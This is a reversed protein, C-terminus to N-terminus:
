IRNKRKSLAGLVRMADERAQWDTKFIDELSPTNKIFKSKQMVKEIVSAIGCFSISGRLFAEVAVENAANIICPANGGCRLAEFALGLCPFRKIDPKEFLLEGIKLPDIHLRRNTWREPFSLSFQIPLRMDTAALQALVSGDVFEVMSHVLAKRHILVKIKEPDINFLERAEIVELGKNMLTASDVTIKKGMNWRPHSLVRKVSVSQLQKLSDDVLPGGSATLYLREVSDIGYGRLCQFIANQESDVPIIDVRHQLAEKRVLSGAIVIAEKNALAITKKARIASLLPFLAEAGVIAVLVIDAQKLMALECLGDRSALVKLRGDTNKALEFAKDAAAVAVAVPKFEEIQKKLVDINTNVSLGVVNLRDKFQRVVELASLGISGSSGLIVINKKKPM